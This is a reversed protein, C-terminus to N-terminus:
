QPVAWEYVLEASDPRAKMRPGDVLWTFHYLRITRLAPGGPEGGARVGEYRRWVYRAISDLVRDRDRRGEFGQMAWYFRSADFPTLGPIRGLDVEGEASTGFLRWRSTSGVQPQSYMKYPSFPWLEVGSLTALLSGGVIVGILGQVLYRRPRGMRLPPEASDLGQRRDVYEQFPRWGVLLALAGLLALVVSVTRSYSRWYELFTEYDALPALHIVRPGQDQYARLALMPVLIEALVVWCVLLIGLTMAVRSARTRAASRSTM